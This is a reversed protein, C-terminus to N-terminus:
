AQAGDPKAAPAPEVALSQRLQAIQEDTLVSLDIQSSQSDKPVNSSTSDAELPNGYISEDVYEPEEDYYPTNVSSYDFEDDDDYELDEADEPPEFGNAVAINGLANLTNAGLVSSIPINEVLVEDSHPEYISIPELTFSILLENAVKPPLLLSDVLLKDGKLFKFKFPSSPQVEGFEIYEGLREIRFNATLSTRITGIGDFPIETEYRKKVTERM